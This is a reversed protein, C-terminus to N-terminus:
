KYLFINTKYIHTKNNYMVNKNAQQIYCKQKAYLVNKQIYLQKNKYIIRKYIFYNTKTYLVKQIYLM